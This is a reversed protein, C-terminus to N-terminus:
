GGCNVLQDLTSALEVALEAQNSKRAPLVLQYVPIQEVARQILQEERVRWDSLMEDSMAACKKLLTLYHRAENFNMQLLENVVKSGETVPLVTPSLVDGRKLLVLAAPKAQLALDREPWLREVPLRVPWKIREGSWARVRGWFELRFRESRTLRSSVQPVWRLLDRYLHSRTLYAFSNPGDGLFVYDDAHLSWPPQGYALVLSTTTTKGAGGQGTFILSKGGRAIAGAHLLLLNEQAALWRLSPHVMMHHIMPISFRNGVADIEVGSATFKICYGWRAALKHTHLTYGAPLRFSPERREFRLRVSRGSFEGLHFGYEARFFAQALPDDTELQFTVKNHFCFVAQNM